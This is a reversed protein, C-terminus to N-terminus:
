TKLGFDTVVTLLSRIFSFILEALRTRVKSPHADEQNEATHPPEADTGAHTFIYKIHGLSLFSHILSLGECNVM